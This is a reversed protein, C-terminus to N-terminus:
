GLCFHVVSQSVRGQVSLPTMLAGKGQGWAAEKM